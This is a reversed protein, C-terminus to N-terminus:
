LIWKLETERGRFVVSIGAGFFRWLRRLFANVWVGVLIRRFFAEKEISFGEFFLREFGRGVGERYFGVQRRGRLKGVLFFEEKGEGIFRPERFAPAWFTPAGYISSQFFEGWIWVWRVKEFKFVLYLYYFLLQFQMM